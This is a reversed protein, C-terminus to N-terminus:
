LVAKPFPLKRWRFALVVLSGAAVALALGFLLGGYGEGTAPDV